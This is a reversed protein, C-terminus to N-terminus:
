LLFFNLDKKKTNPFTIGVMMQSDFNEIIIWNFIQFRFFSTNDFLYLIEDIFIKM